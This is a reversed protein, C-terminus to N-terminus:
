VGLWWPVVQRGPEKSWLNVSYMHRCMGSGKVEATFPTPACSDVKVSQTGPLKM